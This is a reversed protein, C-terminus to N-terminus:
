VEIQVTSPSLNQDSFECVNPHNWELFEPLVLSFHSRKILNNQQPILVGGWWRGGPQSPTMTCIMQFYPILNDHTRLIHPPHHRYLHCRFKTSCLIWLIAGNGWQFCNSVIKGGGSIRVSTRLSRWQCPYNILMASLWGLKLHVWQTEIDM